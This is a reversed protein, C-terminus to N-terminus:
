DSDGGDADQDVKRHLVKISKGSKVIVYAHDTYLFSIKQYPEDQVNESLIQLCKNVVNGIRDNNQLSGSSSTIAGQLWFIIKNSVTSIKSTCKVDFNLTLQGLIEESSM